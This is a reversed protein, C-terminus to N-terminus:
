GEGNLLELGGLLGTFLRPNNSVHRGTSGIRQMILRVVIILNDLAVLVDDRAVEKSM